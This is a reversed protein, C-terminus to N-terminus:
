SKAGRISVSSIYEPLKAL